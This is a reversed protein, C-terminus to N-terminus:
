MKNTMRAAPKPKVLQFLSQSNHLSESCVIIKRRYVKHGICIAFRGPESGLKYCFYFEATPGLVHYHPRRYKEPESIVLLRSFTEYFLDLLFRIMIINKLPCALVILLYLFFFFEPQFWM